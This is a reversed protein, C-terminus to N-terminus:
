SATFTKNFPSIVVIDAWRGQIPKVAFVDCVGHPDEVKGGAAVQFTGDINRPSMDRIFSTVGKAGVINATAGFAGTSNVYLNGAYNYVSPHAGTGNLTLDGGTKNIVTTATWLEVTGGSMENTAGHTVGPGFYVVADGVQNSRYGIKSTVKCTEGFQGVAVSGAIVELTGDAVSSPLIKLALAKRTSDNSSGTNHVTIAVNGTMFDLNLMTSGQSDGLGIDVLTAGLFQLFRGRYESYASSGSGNVAPLGITSGNAWFSSYIKLSAPTVDDLADLEYLISVGRAIVIDDADVPLSGGSWNAVNGLHNPGTAATADTGTSTTTGDITQSDAAGGVDRTTISVSFPKGATDGTATLTATAFSWTIEAFEPITLANLAAALTAGLTAITSSGASVSVTIGNITVDNIDTAEWTGGFVWNRVQAVAQANGLWEKTAM